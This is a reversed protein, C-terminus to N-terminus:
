GVSGDADIADLTILDLGDSGGCNGVVKSDERAEEGDGVNFSLEGGQYRLDFMVEGGLCDGSNGNAVLEDVSSAGGYGIDNGCDVRCARGEAGSAVQSGDDGDVGEIRENGVRFEAVGGVVTGGVGVGEKVAGVRGFLGPWPKTILNVANCTDDTDGAGRCFALPGGVFPDDDGLGAPWVGTVGVAGGYRRTFFLLRGDAGEPVAEVGIDEEERGKIVLPLVFTGKTHLTIPADLSEFPAGRKEM